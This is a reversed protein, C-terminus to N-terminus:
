APPVRREGHADHARNMERRAEKFQEFTMASLEEGSFRRPEGRIVRCLEQGEHVNAAIGALREREADFGVPMADRIACLQALRDAPFGPRSEAEEVIM